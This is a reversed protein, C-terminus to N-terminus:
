YKLVVLDSDFPSITQHLTAIKDRINGDTALSFLNLSREQMGNNPFLKGTIQDITQLATEHRQKVLKLLKDQLAEMQKQLKVAEAEAYKDLHPDFQAVKQTIEQQILQVLSNLHSFDAEQAANEQIYKKKLHTPDEFISEVTMGIKEMKKVVLPEVLLLSSRVQILPYPLHLADFVGKLQLWYSMEGVGGVYCLNPLITEQYVPRLIVNPSFREPYLHLEEILDEQTVKGKGEVFFGNEVQLIRQRSQESLYFLNIERATVQTKLGEKQVLENTKQVARYSFQERLEKELTPVFCKKLERDDGDVILLGYSDFLKHLLQFTAQALNDGTYVSLIEDIENETQGSFLASIQAKLEAFGVLDFRGVAGAQETEWTFNKSFIDVSQIEEFDHDESAMWFIPIFHNEPYEKNLEETLRIVHLIKYILYIPGTFLSLQHGTTVTFTEPHMWADIQQQLKPSCSVTAYKKVLAAHMVKRMEMSYHAKKDVIQRAFNSSSFTRSIFPLLADQQDSLKLQQENFLGTNRRNFAFKQM